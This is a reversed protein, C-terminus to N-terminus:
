KPGTQWFRACVPQFPLDLRLINRPGMAAPVNGSSIRSMSSDGILRVLATNALQINWDRDVVLAPNPEHHKLMLALAQQVPKWIAEHELDRQQFLDSYGAARLLANRERMPVQLAEALQLVMHRSPRARGSELFSLHRQSVASDLALELQSRKRLSRWQRLLAGFGSDTRPLVDPSCGSRQADDPQEKLM